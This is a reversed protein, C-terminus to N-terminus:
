TSGLLSVVPGALDEIGETLANLKPSAALDTEDVSSEGAEFALESPFTSKSRAGEPSDFRIVTVGSDSSSCFGAVVEVGYSGGAKFPM